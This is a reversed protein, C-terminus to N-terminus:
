TLRPATKKLRLFAQRAPLERYYVVRFASGFLWSVVSAAAVFSLPPTLETAFLSLECTAIALAAALGVKLVARRLEEWRLALTFVIDDLDDLWLLLVEM